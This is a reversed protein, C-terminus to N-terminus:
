LNSTGGLGKKLRQRLPYKRSNRMYTERWRCNMITENLTVNYTVCWRKDHMYHLSMRSTFPSKVFNHLQSINLMNMECQFFSLNIVSGVVRMPLTVWGSFTLLNDWHGPDDDGSPNVSQSWSRLSALTGSVDNADINFSVGDVKFYFVRWKWENFM